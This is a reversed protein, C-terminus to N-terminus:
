DFFDSDLNWIEPFRNAQVVDILFRLQLECTESYINNSKVLYQEGGEILHITTTQNLTLVDTLYGYGQDDYIPMYGNGLKLLSFPHFSDDKITHYITEVIPEIPYQQDIDHYTRTLEWEDLLKIRVRSAINPTVEIDIKLDKIYNLSSEDYPNVIITNQEVNYYPSNLDVYVGDFSVFATITADGAEIAFGYQNTNEFYAYAFLASSLVSLILVLIVISLKTFHKKM